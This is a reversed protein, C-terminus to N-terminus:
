PRGLLASELENSAMVAPLGWPSRPVTLAPDVFCPDPTVILPVLEQAASLDYNRGKPTSRLESVKAVWDSYDEGLVDRVNRVESATARGLADLRYNKCNIILAVGERFAIADIDTIASRDARKLVRGVLMRLKTPPAWPSADILRQTETEFHRARANQVEGTATMNLGQLLVRTIAWFDIMVAESGASVVAPGPTASAIDAPQTLASLISETTFSDRERPFQDLYVEALPSQLARELLTVVEKRPFTAAGFKRVWLDPLVDGQLSGLFATSAFALRPLTPPYWDLGRMLAPIRSQMKIYQFFAFRVGRGNSRDTYLEKYLESGSPPADARGVGVPSIGAVALHEGEWWRSTPPVKALLSTWRGQVAARRNDLAQVAAWMPDSKDIAPFGGSKFIIGVGKAACRASVHVSAFTNTIAVFRLLQPIERERLTLLQAMDMPIWRAPPACNGSALLEALDRREVYSGPNTFGWAEYIWPPLLRLNQLLRHYTHKRTYEVAHSALVTSLDELIKLAEPGPIVADREVGWGTLADDVLERSRDEELVDAWLTTAHLALDEGQHDIVPPSDGKRGHTGRKSSRMKGM